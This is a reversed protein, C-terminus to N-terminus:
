KLEGALKHLQIIKFLRELVEDYTKCVLNLKFRALKDWMKDTITITKM